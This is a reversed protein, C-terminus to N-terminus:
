FHIKILFFREDELIPVTFIASQCKTTWFCFCRGVCNYFSGIFLDRQKSGVIVPHAEFSCAILVLAHLCLM